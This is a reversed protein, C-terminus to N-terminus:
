LLGIEATSRIRLRAAAFHGCGEGGSAHMLGGGRSASWRTRKGGGAPASWHRDERLILVPVVPEHLGHMRNGLRRELVSFHLLEHPPAFPTAGIVNALDPDNEHVPRALLHVQDLLLVENRVNARMGIHRLSPIPPAGLWGVKRAHLRM